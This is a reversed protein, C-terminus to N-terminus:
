IALALELAREKVDANHGLMNSEFRASRVLGNREDASVTKAEAGRITTRSEHDLYQTVANLAAWATGRVAPNDQGAGTMFLESLREERNKNMSSADEDVLPTRFTERFFQKLRQETPIQKAVTAKAQEVFEDFGQQAWGFLNRAVELRDMLSKTHKISFSDRGNAVKRLAQRFTNQCIVRTPTLLPRVALSGDHGNALLFLSEVVDNKAVEASSGGDKNLLRCQIFIRKGDSFQGASVYEVRKDAVLSDCFAFAEANQLVEFGSGVVGLVANTDSRVIAKHSPVALGEATFLAKDNARWDLKANKMVDASTIMTDAADAVPTSIGFLPSALLPKLHYIHNTM